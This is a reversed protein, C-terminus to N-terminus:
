WNRTFEKEDSKRVVKKGADLADCITCNRRKRGYCELPSEWNHFAQDFNFASSESVNTHIQIDGFNSSQTKSERRNKRKDAGDVSKVLNAM